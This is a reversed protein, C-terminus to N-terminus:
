EMGTRYAGSESSIDSPVQLVEFATGDGGVAVVAQFQELAEDRVIDTAQGPRETVHLVVEFGAAQLM